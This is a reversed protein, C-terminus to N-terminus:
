TNSSVGIHATMPSPMKCRSRSLAGVHVAVGTSFPAAASLRVIRRWKECRRTAVPPECSAVAKRFQLAASLASVTGRSHDAGRLCGRQMAPVGLRALALRMRFHSHRHDHKLFPPFMTALSDVGDRRDRSSCDGASFVPMLLRSDAASSPASRAACGGTSVPVGGGSSAAPRTPSSGKSSALRCVDRLAPLRDIACFSAPVRYGSRDVGWDRFTAPANPSSVTLQHAPGHASGTAAAMSSNLPRTTWGALSPRYACQPM